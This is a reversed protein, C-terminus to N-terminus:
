RGVPQPDTSRRNDDALMRQVTERVDRLRVPKEIFVDAGATLASRRAAEGGASVAIIPLETLGLRGRAQSIVQAGDLIPLYVDIILVDFTERALIEVATRGDAAVQFVFSAARGPALQTARLGGELLEAVHRNDEVVLVRVPTSVVKVDRKRIREVVAALHERGTDDLEVGVSWGGDPNDLRTWRVLGEIAIPQILGPFSLV